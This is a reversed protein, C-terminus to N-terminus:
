VNEIHKVFAADGVFRTAGVDGPRLVVCTVPIDLLLCDDLNIEFWSPSQFNEIDDQSSKFRYAVVQSTSTLLDCVRIVYFFVTGGSRFAEALHRADEDFISKDDIEYVFWSRRAIEVDNLEGDADLLKRVDVFDHGLVDVRSNSQDM